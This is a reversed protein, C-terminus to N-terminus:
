GHTPWDPMDIQKDRIMKGLDKMDGLLKREMRQLGLQQAYKEHRWAMAFIHQWFRSM